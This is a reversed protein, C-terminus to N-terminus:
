VCRVNSAAVPLISNVLELAAGGDTPNMKWNAALLAKESAAM